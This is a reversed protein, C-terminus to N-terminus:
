EERPKPDLRNLAEKAQRKCDPAFPPVAQVGVNGQVSAIVLSADPSDLASDVDEADNLFKSEVSCFPDGNMAYTSDIKELGLADVIKNDSFREEEEGCAALVAAALAVWAVFPLVRGRRIM